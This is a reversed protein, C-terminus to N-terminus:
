NRFIELFRPSNENCKLGHCPNQNRVVLLLNQFHHHVDELGRAV